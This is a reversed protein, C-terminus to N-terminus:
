LMLTKIGSLIDLRPLFSPFSPPFPLGVLIYKSWIMFMRANTKPRPQVSLQARVRAAHIDKLLISILKLDWVAAQALCFITLTFM